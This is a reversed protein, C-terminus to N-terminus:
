TLQKLLRANKESQNGKDAKLPIGEPLNATDLVEELNSNENASARTTELGLVLGEEDTVHHQKYGYHFKGGKKLWSGDKYVRDAYEQKTSVEQEESRDETLKHKTKVKPKFPTDIVSSDVIAWSKVIIGHSELQINIEDFLVDYAGAKTM